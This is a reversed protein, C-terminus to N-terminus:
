KYDVPEEKAYFKHKELCNTMYNSKEYYNKKKIHNQYKVNSIAKELSEAYTMGWFIEKVNDDGFDNVETVKEYVSYLKKDKEM